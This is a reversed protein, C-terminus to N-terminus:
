GLQSGNLTIGIGFSQTLNTLRYLTSLNYIILCYSLKSIKDFIAPSVACTNGEGRALLLSMNTSILRANTVSKPCGTAAILPSIFSILAIVGSSDAMNVTFHM